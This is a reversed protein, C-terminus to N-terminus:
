RKVKKLILRRQLTERKKSPLLVYISMVIEKVSGFNISFDKM